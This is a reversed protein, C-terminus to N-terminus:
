RGGLQFCSAYMAYIRHAFMLDFVCVCAFVVLVSADCWNQETELWCRIALDWYYLAM